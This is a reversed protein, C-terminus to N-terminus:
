WLCQIGTIQNDQNLPSITLKKM